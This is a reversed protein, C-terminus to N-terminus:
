DDLVGTLYRSVMQLHPVSDSPNELVDVIRGDQGILYTVRRVGTGMQDTETVVRRGDCGYAGIVERATDPILPYSLGYHQRFLRHSDADQPSVGIVRVGAERLRGEMEAYGEAQLTCVPTFDAPYFYLVVPGTQLMTSLRNSAGTDDTFVFDPAVDGV